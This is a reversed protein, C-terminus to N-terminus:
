HEFPHITSDPYQSRYTQHLNRIEGPHLFIALHAITLTEKFDVGHWHAEILMKADQYTLAM